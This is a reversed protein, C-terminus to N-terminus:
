RSWPEVPLQCTVQQSSYMKFPQCAPINRQLPQQSHVNLTSDLEKKTHTTEIGEQIWPQIIV